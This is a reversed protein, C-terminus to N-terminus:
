CRRLCEALSMRSLRLPSPSCLRSKGSLQNDRVYGSHGILIGGAAEVRHSGVLAIAMLTMAALPLLLKHM